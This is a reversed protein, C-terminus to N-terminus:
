NSNLDVDSYSFISKGHISHQDLKQRRERGGGKVRFIIYRGTLIHKLTHICTCTHTHTHTYTHM